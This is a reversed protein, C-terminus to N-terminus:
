KKAHKNIEDWNWDIGLGPDTPVLAEGRVVTLPNKMLTHLVDVNNNPNMYELGGSYLNNIAAAFHIHIESHVHTAVPLGRSSAIAAAAMFERVGGVILADIRVVDIFGQTVLSGISRHGTQSEGFAISVGTRERLNVALTGLSEHFPDEVFTIDHEKIANIRRVADDLDKFSRFADVALKAEPGILERVIRVRQTDRQVTGAGTVMKFSTFGAKVSSTVEDILATEEDDYEYGVVSCVLVKEHQQGLSKALSIMNEKGLADWIAIDLASLAATFTGHEASHWFKALLHQRIKEPFDSDKGIVEPALASNIIEAMPMARTYCYGVGVVGGELTVKVIAYGRHTVITTGVPLPKLLPVNVEICEVQIIRGM